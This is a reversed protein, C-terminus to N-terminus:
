LTLAPKSLETVQKNQFGTELGAGVCNVDSNVLQQYIEVLEDNLKNMDYKEEVRARGARGMGPWAEPYKILYSLKAAIADADREPVLFGSVGDEVLEPIGGHFTSIVPLGMAM